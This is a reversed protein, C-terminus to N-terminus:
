ANLQVTKAVLGNGLYDMDNDLYCEIHYTPHYIPNTSRMPQFYVSSGGSSKGSFM